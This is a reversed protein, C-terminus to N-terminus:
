SRKIICITEGKDLTKGPEASIRTVKGDAPADINNSMKMAEIVAIVEGVKVQDGVKKDIRLLIGPLPAKVAVEGEAPQDKGGGRSAGVTAGMIVPGRSGGTQMGGAGFPMQHRILPTNNPDNVEVKHYEGDVYVDFTRIDDPKPPIGEPYERKKEEHANPDRKRVNVHADGKLFIIGKEKCTAAIFISEDTIPLGNERLLAEAVAAGKTPDADNIERPCRTTPELEMQQRALEVIKPDPPVPTKGFYGLVMKGYGEAIKEWPGVMTNNFAQQFYFQSVPTM